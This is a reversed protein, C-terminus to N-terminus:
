RTIEDKQFENLNSILETLLELDRDSFKETQQYAQDEFVTIADNIDYEVEHQADPESPEISNKVLRKQTESAFITIDESLSDPTSEETKTVLVIVAILLCAAVLYLGNTTIFRKM